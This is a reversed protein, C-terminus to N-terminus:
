GDSLMGIILGFDHAAPSGYWEAQEKTVIEIMGHSMETLDGSQMHLFTAEKWNKPIIKRRFARVKCYKGLPTKYILWGEKNKNTNLM